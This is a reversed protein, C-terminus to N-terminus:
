LALLGAATPRFGCSDLYFASLDPEFDVHLWQCGAARAHQAAVAVLQTGVGSRRLQAAVLTDLIMAHRGGDWIVNVFGVLVIDQWACVWGLSHRHLRGYWDQDAPPHGFGAAHLQNLETNDFAGRWQFTIADRRGPM